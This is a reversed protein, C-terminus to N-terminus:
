VQDPRSSACNQSHLDQLTTGGTIMHAIAALIDQEMNYLLPLAPERDGFLWKYAQGAMQNWKRAGRAYSVGGIQSLLLEIRHQRSIMDLSLRLDPIEVTALTRVESFKDEDGLGEYENEDLHAFAEELKTYFSHM